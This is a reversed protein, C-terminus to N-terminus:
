LYGYFFFIIKSQGFIPSTVCARESDQTTNGAAKSFLLNFMSLFPVGLANPFYKPCMLHTNMQKLPMM